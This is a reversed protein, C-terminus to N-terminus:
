GLIKSEIILEIFVRCIIYFCVENKAVSYIWGVLAMRVLHGNLYQFVPPFYIQCPKWKSIDPPVTWDLM